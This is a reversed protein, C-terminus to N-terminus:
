PKRLVARRLDVSTYVSTRYYVILCSETQKIQEVVNNISEGDLKKIIKNTSVSLNLVVILLVLMVKVLSM